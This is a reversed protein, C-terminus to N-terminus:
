GGTFAKPFWAVVVTAGSLESLRYIRHDSGPMSFDPARDGVGLEVVTGQEAMLTNVVGRAVAAVTTLLRKLV